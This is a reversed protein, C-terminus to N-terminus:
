PRLVAQELDHRGAGPAAGAARRRDTIDKQLSPTSRDAEGGARHRRHCRLRRVASHDARRAGRRLRVRDDLAAPRCCARIGSRSKTAPGERRVAREHGNVVAEHIGDKYLGGRDPLGHVRPNTENECFLLVPGDGVHLAYRGLDPTRPSWRKPPSIAMAAAEPRRPALELSQRVVAAAACAATGSGSRPQAGHDADASRRCRAKAYEVFSTSIATRTSCAPISCRVREPARRRRSEPSWGDRLPLGGASIQLADASLCAVPLADLYWYVEKVDEGHSGQNGTLGFLREKLIRDRGNWLALSLCLIAPNTASGPSARGRGLSLRPRPCGRPQYIGLRHRGPQLGRARHGM